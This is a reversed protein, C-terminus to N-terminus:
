INGSMLHTYDGCSNKGENRARFNELQRTGYCAPPDGAALSGGLNAAKDEMCDNKHKKQAECHPNELGLLRPVLILPCVVPTPKTGLGPPTTQWILTTLIAVRDISFYIGLRHHL